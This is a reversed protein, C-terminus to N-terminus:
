KGQMYNIIENVVMGIFLGFVTAVVLIVFAVVWMM